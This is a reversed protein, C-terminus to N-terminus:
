ESPAEGIFETVRQLNSPATEEELLLGRGACHIWVRQDQFGPKILPEAWLRCATFSGQVFNTLTAFVSDYSNKDGPLDISAYILRANRFIIFGLAETVDGKRTLILSDDGPLNLNLDYGANVFEEEAQKKPMGVWVAVEGIKLRIRRGAPVNAPRSAGQSRAREQSIKPLLMLLIFALVARVKM